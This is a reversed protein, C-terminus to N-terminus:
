RSEGDGGNDSIMFLKHSKGRGKSGAEVEITGSGRARKLVTRKDWGLAKAVQTATVGPEEGVIAELQGIVNWERVRADFELSGPEGMSLEIEWPKQPAMERFEREVKIRLTGDRDSDMSECYMASAVWGHFTTSGLVRQGPRAVGVNVGQPAKRFHHVLAIALNYEYRLRLLWQLFPKIQYAKDLDADGFMLYMPDLILLVPKVAEIERILLDQHDEDSLDFGYNNLLRLPIDEPFQLTVATSAISGEAPSSLSVDTSSILGSSSAIKRMRDQVNWPANEEQVVLVPGPVHVPFQGLFPKGSAVAVAMALSLTTKSTKPEGGIIGHAGQTWIDEILWRPAELGMAMFSAYRVFPSVASAEDVGATDESALDIGDPQQGPGGSLDEEQTRAPDKTSKGRTSKRAVHVIAKRIERRLRQEGTRVRSWKNWASESVEEYIADEGWGAEALLCELEWLRDSREGEVVADSPVRLLSRAKPPLPGRQAASVSGGESRGTDVQAADRVRSWLKKPNYALDEYYWLLEVFPADDYKFNRTGPLRLVQTLDWGGRDAGLKYSLAQNLRSLADAGLERDLEWLAQFRGHSSAWAVTPAFGMEAAKAPSVEDLDAWLWYTPLFDEANRGRESFMGVSFYLDESDKLCSDIRRSITLDAEGPWEYHFPVWHGSVKAPMDIWGPRRGYVIELFDEAAMHRQEM